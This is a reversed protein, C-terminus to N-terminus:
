PMKSHRPQMTDPYKEKYDSIVKNFEDIYAGYGNAIGLKEIEPGSVKAMSMPYGVWDYNFAEKKLYPLVKMLGTTYVMGCLRIQSDDNSNQVMTKVLTMTELISVAHQIREYMLFKDSETEGQHYGLKWSGFLLVAMLSIGTIIITIKM